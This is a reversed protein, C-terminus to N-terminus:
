LAGEEGMETESEVEATEDFPNQPKELAREHLGERHRCVARYDCHECPNYGVGRVPVPAIDGGYLAEGLAAM